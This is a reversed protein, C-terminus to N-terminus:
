TIHEPATCHTSASGPISGLDWTVEFGMVVWQADPVEIAISASM